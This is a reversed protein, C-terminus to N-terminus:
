RIFIAGLDFSFLYSQTHRSGTQIASILGGGSGIYSIKLNIQSRAGNETLGADTRGILRRPIWGGGITATLMM